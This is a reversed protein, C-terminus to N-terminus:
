VTRLECAAFEALRPHCEGLQLPLPITGTELVMEPTIANDIKAESMTVGRAAVINRLGAVYDWFPQWLTRGSLEDPQNPPQEDSM